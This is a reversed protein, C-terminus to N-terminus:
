NIFNWNGTENINLILDLYVGECIEDAGEGCNSKIHNEKSIEAYAAKYWNNITQNWIEKHVM